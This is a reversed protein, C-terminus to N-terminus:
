KYACPSTGSGNYTITLNSIKRNALGECNIQQLPVVFRDNIEVLFGSEPTPPDGKVLCLAQARLIFDKIVGDYRVTVKPSLGGGMIYTDKDTKLIGQTSLTCSSPIEKSNLGLKSGIEELDKAGFSSKDSFSIVLSNPLNKSTQALTESSDTEHIIRGLDKPPSYDKTTKKDDLPCPIKGNPDPSGKSDSCFPFGPIEMPRTAQTPTSPSAPAPVAAPAAAPAPDGLGLNPLSTSSNSSDKPLLVNSAARLGQPFFTAVFLFCTATFLIRRM